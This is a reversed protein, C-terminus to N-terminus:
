KSYQVLSHTAKKKNHQAPTGKKTTKPKRESKSSLPPWRGWGRSRGGPLESTAARMERVTGAADDDIQLLQVLHFPPVADQFAVRGDVRLLNLRFIGLQSIEVTIRALSDFFHHKILPLLRQVQWRRILLFLQINQLLELLLM